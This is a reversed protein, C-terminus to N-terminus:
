DTMGGVLSVLAWKTSGKALILRYTKGSTLTKPLSIGSDSPIEINAHFALTRDAGSATIKLRILDDESGGAPVQITVNGTASAKQREGNVRNLSVNGAVNGLNYTAVSIIDSQPHTHAAPPFVSPKNLLTNWNAPGGGGGEQGPVLGGSLNSM